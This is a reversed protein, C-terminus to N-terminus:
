PRLNVPYYDEEYAAYVAAMIDRVILVAEKESVPHAQIYDQLSHEHWEYYHISGYDYNSILKLRLWNPHERLTWLVETNYELVTELQLRTLTELKFVKALYRQGEKSVSYYTYIETRERPEKEFTYGDIGSM